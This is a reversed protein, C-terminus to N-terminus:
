KRKYVSNGPDSKEGGYMNLYFLKDNASMKSYNERMFLLAEFLAKGDEGSFYTKFNLINNTLTENQCKVINFAFELKDRSSDLLNKGLPNM